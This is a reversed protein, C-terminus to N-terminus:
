INQTFYVKFRYKVDIEVFGLVYQVDPTVINTKFFFVKQKRSDLLKRNQSTQTPKLTKNKSSRYDALEKM